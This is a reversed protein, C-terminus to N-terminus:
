RLAEFTYFVAISGGGSLLSVALLVWLLRRRRKRKAAEVQADISQTKAAELRSMPSTGHGGGISARHGGTLRAASRAPHDGPQRRAPEDHEHSPM